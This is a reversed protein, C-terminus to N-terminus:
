KLEISFQDIGNVQELKMNGKNYVELCILKKKIVIINSFYYNYVVNLYFNGMNIIFKYCIERNLEKLFRFFFRFKFVMM